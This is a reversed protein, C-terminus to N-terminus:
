NRLSITQTFTRSIPTASESVVDVTNAEISVRVSRVAATGVGGFTVYRTASNVLDNPTTDIGFLVQLDSIGEVLEVPADTGRKRWLSTTADGRNNTGAGDAVFYIDTIIEAVVSGGNSGAAADGYPVGQDSLSRAPNNAFVGVSSGRNLTVGGAGAAVGTVNFLAAQECNAIVAYDGAQFPVNGNDEVVPADNPAVVQAIRHGPALLYRVVLIDTGPVLDGVEVGNGAIITNASGGGTNRPLSALSPTWDGLTNGGGTGDFGEVPVQLNFEFVQAWNANLTNYLKDDDPDCGFFGSNRTSQSIFDLAYRASEQLRSQGTILENTRSNGVFLQVIGATVVLGLTLALMLEILSFGGQRRVTFASSRSRSMTNM